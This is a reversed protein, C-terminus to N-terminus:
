PFFLSVASLYFFFFFFISFLLGILNCFVRHCICMGPIKKGMGSVIPRVIGKSGWGNKDGSSFTIEMVLQGWKKGEM